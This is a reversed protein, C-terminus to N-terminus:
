PKFRWPQRVKQKAKLDAVVKTNGEREHLEILVALLDLQALEPSLMGYVRQRQEPMGEWTNAIQKGLAEVHAERDITTGFTNSELLQIAMFAATLRDEPTYGLIEELEYQEPLAASNWDRNLVQTQIYEAFLRGILYNGASNYHVHELYFESGPTGCEANAAVQPEIDLFLRHGESNVVERMLDNIASPARFRCGDLDRARRFATAAEDFRQLGALCEALRFQLRADESHIEAAKGIDELAPEFDSAHILETARIVLSQWELHREFNRSDPWPSYVPSQNKLNCAVTSLLLPVERELCSRIMREVNIRYNRRADAFIKSGTPINLQAPLVDILSDEQLADGSRLNRGLQFLRTRRLRLGLPQLSPPLQIATSAPGGPGYFENHGAHVIVLDPDIALSQSLLDAVSYSNLGTVGCNLLEFDRGPNQRELMVEIYRPFALEAAFPYGIVTSAGVVVIRFTQNPKVLAFHRPEPGSLNTVGYYPLDALENLLHTWEPKDPRVAKAPIILSTNPGLNFLQCLLEAAPLVCLSALVAALRFKWRRLRSRQRATVKASGLPSRQKTSTTHAEPAGMGVSEEDAM